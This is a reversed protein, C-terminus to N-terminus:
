ACFKVHDAHGALILLILLAYIALAAVVCLLLPFPYVIVIRVCASLISPNQPNIASSNLFHNKRSYPYRCVGKSGSKQWGRARWWEGGVHDIKAGAEADAEAQM